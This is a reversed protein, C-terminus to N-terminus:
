IRWNELGEFCHIQRDLMRTQGAAMTELEGAIHQEVPNKIEQWNAALYKLTDTQIFATVEDGYGFCLGEYKKDLVSHEHFAYRDELLVISMKSNRSDETDYFFKKELRIQLREGFYVSSDKPIADLLGDSYNKISQRILYLQRPGADANGAKTGMFEKKTRLYLDNLAIIENTM